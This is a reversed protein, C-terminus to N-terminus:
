QIVRVNYTSATPTGAVAACVKVTVTGAASVYPRWVM